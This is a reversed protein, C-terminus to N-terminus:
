HRPSDPIHLRRREYQILLQNALLFQKNSLAAQMMSAVEQDTKGKITPPAALNPQEIVYASAVAKAADPKMGFRQWTEALHARIKPLDEIHKRNQRDYSYEWEKGARENMQLQQRQLEASMADQSPKSSNQQAALPGAVLIASVILGVNLRRMM